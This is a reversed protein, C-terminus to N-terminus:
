YGLVVFVVVVVWSRVVCRGSYICGSYLWLRGGIGTYKVGDDGSVCRMTQPFQPVSVRVVVDFVVQLMSVVIGVGFCVESVSGGSCYVVM